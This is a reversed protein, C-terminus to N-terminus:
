VNTRKKYDSRLLLGPLFFLLFAIFATVLPHYRFPLYLASFAVVTALFILLIFSKKKITLATVLAAVCFPLFMVTTFGIGYKPQFIFGNLMAMSGAMFWAMGDVDIGAGAVKVENEKRGKAIYYYLTYIFLPIMTLIWIWYSQAAYSTQLLIYQGIGAIMVGVGWLLIISGNEEYICRREDIIRNIIEFSQKPTLQTEM